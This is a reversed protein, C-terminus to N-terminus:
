YKNIIKGDLTDLFTRVAIRKKKELKKFGPYSFVRRLRDEIKDLEAFRRIRWLEIRWEGDLLTDVNDARAVRIVFASVFDILGADSRTIKNIFDFVCSPTDWRIWAALISALARHKALDGHEAWWRIKECALEKLEDLQWELCTRDELARPIDDEDTVGHQREQAKVEEVITNISRVAKKIANKIIEFREQHTSFRMLLSYTIRLIRMNTDIGLYGFEEGPFEDGINILVEIIGPIDIVPIEKGTYDEMRDLFVKIKKERNLELLANEFEGPNGALSLINEITKIPIIGQPISLRFFTDFIEPTCIRGAKRWDSINEEDFDTGNYITDLKPFLRTLLELIMTNSYYPNRDMIEDFIQRYREVSPSEPDVISTVLSKNER